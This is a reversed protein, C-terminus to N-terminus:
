SSISGRQGVLPNGVLEDRLVREDIRFLALAVDRLHSLQPDIANTDVMDVWVSVVLATHIGKRLRTNVKKDIQVGEVCLNLLHTTVVHLLWRYCMRINGLRMRLPGFSLEVPELGNEVFELIVVVSCADKNPVFNNSGLLSGSCGGKNQSSNTIDLGVAFKFSVTWNGNPIGSSVDSLQTRHELVVQCTALFRRITQIEKPQIRILPTTM